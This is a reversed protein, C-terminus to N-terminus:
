SFCWVFPDSFEVFVSARLRPVPSCRSVAPVEALTRPASSSEFLFAKITIKGANADENYTFFVFLQNTVSWINRQYIVFSNGLRFVRHSFSLKSSPLCCLFLKSVHFLMESQWTSADSRVSNECEPASTAGRTNGPLTTKLKAGSHFKLWSIVEKWTRVVLFALIERLNRTQWTLICFFYGCKFPSLKDVMCSHVRFGVQYQWIPIDLLALKGELIDNTIKKIPCIKWSFSAPPFIRDIRPLRDINSYSTLFHSWFNLLGSSSYGACHNRM